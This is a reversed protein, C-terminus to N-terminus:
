KRRGRGKTGRRRVKRTQTSKQPTPTSGPPVLVSQSTLSVSLSLSLQEGVKDAVLRIFRKVREPDNSVMVELVERAYARGNPFGCLRGVSTLDDQVQKPLRLAYIPTPM